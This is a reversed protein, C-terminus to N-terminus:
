MMEGVLEILEVISDAVNESIDLYDENEINLVHQLIGIHRDTLEVAILRRDNMKKEREISIVRGIERGVGYKSKKVSLGM